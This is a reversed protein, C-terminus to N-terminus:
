VTSTQRKRNAAPIDFQGVRLTRTVLQMFEDILRPEPAPYHVVASGKHFVHHPCATAVGILHEVTRNRLWECSFRM